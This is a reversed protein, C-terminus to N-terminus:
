GWGGSSGLEQGATDGQKAQQHRRSSAPLLFLAPFRARQLQPARSAGLVELAGVGAQIQYPRDQYVREGDALTRIKTSSGTDHFHWRIHSSTPNSLSTPFVRTRSWAISEYVTLV